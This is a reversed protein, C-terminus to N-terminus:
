QRFNSPGFRAMIWDVAMTGRVQEVLRRVLGLGHRRSERVATFGRGNDRITMTAMDRTATCRCVQRGGAVQSPTTMATRSWYQLSSAWRTQCDCTLTITDTPAAQIEALSRCLSKVYSGFDTTRAMENGLLHDYVQALTSVRRPM